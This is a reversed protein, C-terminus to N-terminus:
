LQNFLDYKLFLKNAKSYLIKNISCITIAPFDIKSLPYRPNDLIIQMPSYSYLEWSTYLHVLITFSVIILLITWIFRYFCHHNM